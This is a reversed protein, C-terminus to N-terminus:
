SVKKAAQARRLRELKAAASANAAHLKKMPDLRQYEPSQPHPLGEPWGEPLPRNERETCPGKNTREEYEFLFKSKLNARADHLFLEPDFHVDIGDALGGIVTNKHELARTVLPDLISPDIRQRVLEQLLRQGIVARYWANRDVWVHNEKNSM